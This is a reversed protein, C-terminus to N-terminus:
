NLGENMIKWCCIYGQLRGDGCPTFSLPAKAVKVDVNNTRKITSNVQYNALHGDLAQPPSPGTEPSTGSSSTQTIPLPAGNKIHRSASSPESDEESAVADDEEDDVDAGNFGAMVARAFHEESFGNPHADNTSHSTAEPSESDEPATETTARHAPTLPPTQLHLTEWDIGDFFPHRILAAIGGSAEAGLRAEPDLVILKQTLDKAVVDFDDPFNFDLVQIKQFILYQSAGKFPFAGSVFHYLICGLAWFDSAKEEPKGQLMEPSVYQATGVFSTTRPRGPGRGRGPRVQNRTAPHNPPPEPGIFAQPPRRSPSVPSAVDSSKPLIKCSGFDTIMIHMDEGLLINEPKLDRHIIGLKHLHHVASVVEALYFQAINVRFHGMRKLYDLIEGNRAFALVYFLRESSKFSSHLRVFFPHPSLLKSSDAEPFDPADEASAYKHLESPDWPQSTVMGLADRERFAYDQMNDRLLQKIVMSKIAWEKGTKKETGMMVTSFSGEGLIRDYHFSFDRDSLKKPPGGPASPSIMSDSAM